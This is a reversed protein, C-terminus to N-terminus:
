NYRCLIVVNFHKVHWIKGHTDAPGESIVKEIIVKNIDKDMCKPAVIM